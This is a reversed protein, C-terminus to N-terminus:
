PRLVGDGDTDSAAFDARASELFEELTVQGDGNADVSPPLSLVAAEQADLVGDANKDAHAFAAGMAVGHEAQDVEGNGDIDMVSLADSTVGQALAPGAIPLGAGAISWALLLTPYNM